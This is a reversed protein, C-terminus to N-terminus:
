GNIGFTPLSQAVNDREEGSQSRPLIIRPAAHRVYRLVPILFYRSDPPKICFFGCPQKLRQRLLRQMQAKSDANCYRRCCSLRGYQFQLLVLDFPPFTLNIKM